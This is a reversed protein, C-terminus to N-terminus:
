KMKDISYQILANNIANEAMESVRVLEKTFIAKEFERLENSLINENSPSM